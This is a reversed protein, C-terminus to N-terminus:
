HKFYDEIAMDIHEWTIGYECDGNSELDEAIELAEDETCTYGHEEAKGIIDDLSWHLGFYGANKYEQMPNYTDIMGQVTESLTKFEDEPKCVSWDCNIDTKLMELLETLQEKM